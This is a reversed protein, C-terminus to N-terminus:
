SSPYKASVDIEALADLVGSVGDPLCSDILVTKTQGKILYAHASRNQGYILYISPYIEAIRKKVVEGGPMDM